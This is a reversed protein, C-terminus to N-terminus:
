RACGPPPWSSPWRCATWRAASGPWPPRTPRTSSSTRGSPPPATGCCGSRRTPAVGRGSRGVGAPRAPGAAAPDPVPDRRPHAAAAQQHGRDAGPPLRGPAPGRARRRGRHRARLQRPDAVDDRDALAEALRDLPGAGPDGARRPSSASASASRTWSRTRWKPRTPSRPSSWSGPGARRAARGGRRGAADQRSRGPGTLTVLRAAGLRKLVEAVETDRGVFSTLPSSAVPPPTSGPAPM